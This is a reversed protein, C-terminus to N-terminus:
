EIKPYYSKVLSFLIGSASFLTVSPFFPLMFVISVTSDFPPLMVKVNSFEMNKKRTGSLRQIVRMRHLFNTIRDENAQRGAQRGAQRDDVEILNALLCIFHFLVEFYGYFVSM